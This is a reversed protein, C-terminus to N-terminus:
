DMGKASFVWQVEKIVNAKKFKGRAGLNNIITWDEINNRIVGIGLTGAERVLAWISAKASFFSTM